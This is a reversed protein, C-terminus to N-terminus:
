IFVSINLTPLHSLYVFDNKMNTYKYVTPNIELKGSVCVNIYVYMYIYIYICVCKYIYIYIYLKAVVTLPSWFAGKENAEVDLHLPPRWDKGPNSWKVRSIYRM